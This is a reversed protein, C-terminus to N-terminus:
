LVQFKGANKGGDGNYENCGNGAESIKKSFYKISQVV